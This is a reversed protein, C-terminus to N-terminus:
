GPVGGHTYTSSTGQQNSPKAKTQAGGGAIKSKLWDTANKFNGKVYGKFDNLRDIFTKM